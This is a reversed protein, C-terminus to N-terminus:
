ETFRVFVEDHVGTTKAADMVRWFFDHESESEKRYFTDTRSIVAPRNVEHRIYFFVTAKSKMNSM